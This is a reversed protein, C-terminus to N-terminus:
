GAGVGTWSVQLNLMYKASVSWDYDGLIEVLVKPLVPNQMILETPLFDYEFLRKVRLFTKRRDEEISDSSYSRAFVPDQELASWVRHQLYVFIFAINFPCSIIFSIIVGINLGYKGGVSGDFQVLIDSMATHIKPNPGGYTKEWQRIIDLEMLRKVRLFTIRRYKELSPSSFGKAFLPDAELTSYM